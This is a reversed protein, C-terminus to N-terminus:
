IVRDNWNSSYIQSMILVMNSEILFIVRFPTAHVFVCLDARRNLVIAKSWIIYQLDFFIENLIYELKIAVSKNLEHIEKYNEKENRYLWASLIKTHFVCLVRFFLTKM